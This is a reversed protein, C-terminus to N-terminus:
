TGLSLAWDQLLALVRAIEDAAVRELVTISVAMIMLGVVIKIAFGITLVNIQPMTKMIFGMAIMILMIVTVIPAAVRLGLEFSASLTGIVMDLPTQDFWFGGIPVREFTHAVALFLHDLGGMTLFAGFGLYFLLQGIVVSDTGSNPDFARAMALGMQYGAIMGALQMGMLPLMAVLGITMGILLETAVIPMLMILSTDPPTLSSVSITPYIAATFMVLLLAKIRMPVIAGGIGPAALFIGGLRTLVLMYPVAHEFIAEFSLM